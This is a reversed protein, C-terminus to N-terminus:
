SGLDANWRRRERAEAFKLQALRWLKGAVEQCWAGFQRLGELSEARTTPMILALALYVLTAKVPWMLLALVAIGRVLWVSCEARRAVALCLGFVFSEDRFERIWRM